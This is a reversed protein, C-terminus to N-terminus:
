EMERMNQNELLEALKDVNMGDGTIMFQCVGSANVPAKGKEKFKFSVKDKRVVKPAKNSLDKIQPEIADLDIGKPDGFLGCM